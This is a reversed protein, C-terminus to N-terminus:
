NRCRRSRAQLTKTLSAHASFSISPPSHRVIYGGVDDTGETWTGPPSLHRANRQRSDHDALRRQNRGPRGGALHNHDTPRVVPGRVRPLVPDTATAPLIGRRAENRCSPSSRATEHASGPSAVSGRPFSVAPLAWLYAQCARQFDREDYLKQVTAGTPYGNAFDHTFGLTGIRTDITQPGSQVSTM